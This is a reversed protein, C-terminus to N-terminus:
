SHTAESQVAELVSYHAHPNGPAVAGEREALAFRELGRSGGCPRANDLQLM